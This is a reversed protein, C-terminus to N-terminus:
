RLYHSNERSGSLSSTHLSQRKGSNIKNSHIKSARKNVKLRHNERKENVETFVEPV